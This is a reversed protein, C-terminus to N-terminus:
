LTGDAQFLYDLGYQLRLLDHGRLASFVGADDDRVGYILQNLFLALALEPDTDPGYQSEAQAANKSANAEADAYYVVSLGVVPFLPLMTIVILLVMGRRRDNPGLPRALHLM